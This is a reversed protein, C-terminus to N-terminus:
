EQIFISKLALEVNEDYRIRFLKYESNKAWKTKISDKRKRDIFGDEGGFLEIPIYHQAGDFEILIKWTPLFFDFPLTSKDICDSFRKQEEFEIDENM